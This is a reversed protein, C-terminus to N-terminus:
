FPFDDHARTGPRRALDLSISRAYNWRAAIQETTSLADWHAQAEAEEVRAECSGCLVGLMALSFTLGGAGERISHCTCTITNM